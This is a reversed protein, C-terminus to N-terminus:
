IEVKLIATERKEELARNMNVYEKRANRNDCGLCAEEEEEEEGEHKLDMTANPSESVSM